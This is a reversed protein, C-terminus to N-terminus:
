TSYLVSATLVMKSKGMLDYKLFIMMIQLEKNSTTKDV